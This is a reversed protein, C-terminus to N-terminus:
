EAREFVVLYLPEGEPRINRDHVTSSFTIAVLRLGEQHAETLLVPLQERTALKTTFKM